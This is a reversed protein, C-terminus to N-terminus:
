KGAVAAADRILLGSTSVRLELVTARNAPVFTASGYQADFFPALFDHSRRLSFLDVARDPQLAHVTRARTREDGLDHYRGAVRDLAYVTHLGLLNAYPTWKLIQADVYIEDGALAFTRRTGDPFEFTANFRQPGTPVIMMRAAVEEHTLARYGQMGAVLAGLILAAAGLSLGVLTRVLFGLPRGRWAAALGGTVAVAGLAGLIAALIFYPSFYVQPSM